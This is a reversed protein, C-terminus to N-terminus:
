ATVDEVTFVVGNLTLNNFYSDTFQHAYMTIDKIDDRQYGVRNQVTTHMVAWKDCMFAIIGSQNIVHGDATTANITSLEDFQATSNSDTLAQWSAVDRYNPLKVFDDHYVTSYLNAELLGEFDSLVQFVLRDPQVFKGKSDTKTTFLVTMRMMLSKYKKFTKVAHRLCEESRLYEKATLGGTIAYESVYEQVLNIKHCKEPNQTQAYIKEAIYNNRNIGQMVERRYTIANEALLTVYNDFQRLGSENKFANNLQTGTFCVPIEWSDTGGVLQEDVIPLYVTNSGIQSVGSQIDTWSRNAIAEPMEMTIIQTIAGFKDSDEYFVDNSRDTYKTDPYLTKRIRTLSLEKAWKEKSTFDWGDKDATQIVGQYDLPSIEEQGTGQKVADNLQESIDKNVEEAM